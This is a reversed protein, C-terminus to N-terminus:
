RDLCFLIRSQKETNEKTTGCCNACDVNGMYGSVFSGVCCSNKLGNKKLRFGEM